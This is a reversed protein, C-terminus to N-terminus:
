TKPGVAELRALVIQSPEWTLASESEAWGEGSQTGVRSPTIGSVTCVMGGWWSAPVCCGLRDPSSGGMGPVPSDVGPVPFNVGSVLWDM